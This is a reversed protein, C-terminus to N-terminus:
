VKNIYSLAGFIAVSPVGAVWVQKTNPMGLVHIDKQVDNFPPSCFYRTSLRQRRGTTALM